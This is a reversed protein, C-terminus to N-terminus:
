KNSFLTLFITETVTNSPLFYYLNILKRNQSKLEKIVENEDLLEELTFDTRELLTDVPSVTNWNLARWIGAM